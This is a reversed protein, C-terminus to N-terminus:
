MNELTVEGLVIYEDNYLHIHYKLEDLYYWAKAMGDPAVSTIVVLVGYSESYALKM